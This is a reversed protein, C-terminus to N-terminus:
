LIFELTCYKRTVSAIEGQLTGLLLLSTLILNTSLLQTGFESQGSKFGNNILFTVSLAFLVSLVLLPYIRIIRKLVFTTPQNQGKDYALGIVVGSLVFFLIVAETGWNSILGFDKGVLSPNLVFLHCFVVLM